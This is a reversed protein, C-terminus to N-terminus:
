RGFRRRVGARRAAIVAAREEPTVRVTGPPLAGDIEDFRVVKTAPVPADAARVYRVIAPGRRHGATDLWNAIGPDLHAVVARFAGDKDLVAQHGNLSSQHNAYDITKWWQDGLSISWYMAAPPTLEVVLAEDDALEWSGWVTINEAAAGMETRSQPPRFVNLGQARGAEEIDWWFRLSEEVFRGIAVLQAGVQADAEPGATGRVLERRGLPASTCEISLRAPEETAWDYFFQRVVLSSAKETLPMWNGPHESASLVLEFSGDSGIELEDLVVNATSEIGSMVQFGVYRATGRTGRVVYTADGRISAGSYAADPCDMGWRLVNDVNAPTVAPDYPDSERLAEDIGLALLILLHRYASADGRLEAPLMQSQLLGVAQALSASLSDCAAGSRLAKADVTTAKRGSRGVSAPLWAPPGSLEGM